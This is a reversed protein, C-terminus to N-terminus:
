MAKYTEIECLRQAIRGVRRPGTGPAIFMAFRMHGAPDVRFDGAIVAVGDLVTAVALSEPVFWDRVAEAIEPADPRPVIRLLASTVRQGPANSLWDDPFVDFDAPDFPREAVGGSIATYTVFETHQEWKLVHRGIECSHHTAEPKPHSAGHRDLLDVLHARAAARGEGGSGSPLKLALFVATAPPEMHPFPRAHLENALDFRFPHDPVPPM